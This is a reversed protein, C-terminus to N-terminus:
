SRARLAGSARAAPPIDPAPDAVRRTLGFAQSVQDIEALIARRVQPSCCAAKASARALKALEAPSLGFQTHCLLYEDNLNTAFMGPDDTALAVSVGASLLAPLPHAALARVAGTRLNSTPCIELAIGHKALHECLAPDRAAGLGHGIRHAGLERVAAWVEEPGVIEGAHPLSRLGVERGARFLKAYDARPAGHEPGGLGIGVTGEPRYGAAFEWTQEAGSQGDATNADIIWGLEVGHRERVRERGESLATALEGFSIGAARHRVPGVQVEAYRVNCAALQAGLGDLLILVDAGTRILTTVTSYVDLFHRFNTFAYFRRLAAPETPVGGDPHRRALALVTDPDACGVLHLHLEVKPLAAIFAAVGRESVVL